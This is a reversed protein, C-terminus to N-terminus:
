PPPGCEHLGITHLDNSEGCLYLSEAGSCFARVLLEHMVQLAAGCARQDEWGEQQCQLCYRGSFDLGHKCIGSKILGLADHISM